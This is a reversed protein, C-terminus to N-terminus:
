RRGRHINRLDLGTLSRKQIAICNKRGLSLVKKLCIRYLFILPLILIRFLSLEQHIFSVGKKQADSPTYFIVKEGGIYVEGQDMKEVGGLMKMLTSKGAGNEGLLGHVEGYKLSFDVGKLARVGPYAKQIGMMELCLNEM